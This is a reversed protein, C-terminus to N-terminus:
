AAEGSDPEHDDSAQERATRAYYGDRSVLEDHTGAEVIAGERLVVIRDCREVARVRHSVVIGTRGAFVERLNDLVEDETRADVASLCDDLILVRPDTAIARAIALRQRQGGSLNIGREGLMTQYGEPLDVVEAHLRALQTYHEAGEADGDIALAVNREVTDSFLFTEQPALVVSTRLSSVSLDRIDVGDLYITGLPPDYLRM